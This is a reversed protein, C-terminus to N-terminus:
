TKEAYKELWPMEQRAKKIQQDLWARLGSWDAKTETAFPRGYHALDDALARLEEDLSQETWFQEPYGHQRASPDSFAVVNGLGIDRGNCVDLRENPQRQRLKVCVGPFHGHYVGITIVACETMFGYLSPSIRKLRSGFARAVDAFHAKVSRRFARM